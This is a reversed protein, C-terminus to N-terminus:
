KKLYNNLIAKLQLKRKQYYFNEKIRKRLHNGIELREENTKNLLDLIRKSVSKYNNHDVYLGESGVLDPLFGKKSVIVPTSCSMAEAVSQGFTEVDSLQIYAKAKQYMFPMEANNIGTILEINKDIGLDNVISRYKEYADGIKGIIVFKQNPYYNLVEKIAKLFVEGRKLLFPKKDLNIVTFIIEKVCEDRNFFVDTNVSNYLVIPTRKSLKQVDKVMFDSVVFLKTAFRLSLLTAIKKYFPTDLFGIKNGYFSDKLLMAETGGAVIFIPKRSVISKILPLVSGSAWWSFYLDCNYPIESFSSSIIVDYGLEKLINIDQLSYQQKMINEVGENSFFCIKM